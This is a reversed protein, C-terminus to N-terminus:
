INEKRITDITNQKNIKSISYRMILYIFIFVFIASIIIADTPIYIGKEIKISFAKYIAYTGILGSITGYIWAKTGYFLTELNMMKNFEKKTMGISKLMAFEKQRLEMNSTITNFINTVGILTIVMIFGYLFIKVVLVMAKEEKATDELNYINLTSDISEIYKQLNTTDNSQITIHELQFNINPYDDKNVILYGGEYYSNKLGDPKIESTAGIKIQIDKGNLKGDIAEGKKITYRRQEIQKDNVYRLYTDCLIGTKEVDKYNKGIEKVFKKFAENNLAVLMPESYRDGTSIFVENVEDYKQIEDLPWNELDNIKNLDRIKLDLGPDKENYILSYNEISQNTIIKEATEESIKGNGGNVSINYNYDQYYNGTISFVNTIFANMTIFTFISVTISIVTTRYKKKSRKLNKYALTGGTKFLKTIIRPAKLKKSKIKIENSNRLGEIPSIKSAKKASSRASLYITVLGLIVSVIVPLLTIKFILGDVHSLLYDGLISNVIQLVIFVALFGVVIGLPIGIIGLILGETIVNRKIQKKTTGVSSLMSYMKIKETMAITFSNRICFISTFIIIIIIITILTYLMTVTSDSFAFVEWRLLETNIEYNDFKATEASKVIGASADKYSKTGLLEPITTKYQKPNKFSIFVDTSGKEVGKTILTYGPDSYPEFRADPREMIGVITFDYKTSNVVKELGENYPNSSDLTYGENSQREGINASIKDGLKYPKELNQNLTKSIIVENSNRPFRGEILTFKLNEFTENNMSFLQVFPKSKNLIEDLKGYGCRKVQYINAIDRNSKLDEIQSDNIGLIKLHYYGAENTANEVLTTQASVGFGCVACILAVSLMIGIITSITRKKNLKLNKISLKSLINM